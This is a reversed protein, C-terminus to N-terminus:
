DVRLAVGLREKSERRRWGSEAAREAEVHVKMAHDRIAHEYFIPIATATCNGRARPNLRSRLSRSPFHRFRLEHSETAPHSAFERGAFPKAFGTRTEEIGAAEM